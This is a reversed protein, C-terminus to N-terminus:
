RGEIAMKLAEYFAGRWAARDWGPCVTREYRDNHGRVDELAVGYEGMLWAVLGVAAALQEAVPARLHLSGAMGVSITKPYAGTHDHWVAWEVPACRYVPCGDGAAVWFHYQISPYGKGGAARARSCYSATAKPSHSLTHHLTIGAVESAERVPWWDWGRAVLYPHDPQRNVALQQAIDQFPPAGPVGAAVAEELVDALERLMVATAQATGHLDSM